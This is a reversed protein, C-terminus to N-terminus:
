TSLFYWTNKRKRRIDSKQAIPLRSLPFIPFSSSKEKVTQLFVPFHFQKFCLLMLTQFSRLCNKQNQKLSTLSSCGRTSLAPSRTMYSVLQQVTALNYFHHFTSCGPLKFIIFILNNSLLKTTRNCLIQAWLLKVELKWNSRVTEPVAYLHRIKICM